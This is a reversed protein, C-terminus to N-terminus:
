AASFVAVTAVAFVIGLLKRKTFREKMWITAMAASGVFSLQSIPVVVSAEETRMATMLAIIGIPFCVGTVAAHGWGARSFKPGGQSFVAFLFALSTFFVAQSHMLMSPAVGAGVGLKYVINLLGVAVMAVVAWAISVPPVGARGAAGGRFDSLLFIAGGALLFGAMKRVTIAEGLFVIALAAAVIFSIRYIPTSVSAEGLRVSRMFAWFGIFIFVAAAIGLFTYRNWSYAGELYVWVVTIPLAICSQSFMMTGASIGRRAARGYTFDAAGIFLASLLALGIASTM